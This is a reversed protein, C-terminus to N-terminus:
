LPINGHTKDPYEPPRHTMAALDAVLRRRTERPEIVDDIYGRKAAGYPNAFHERYEAMLEERRAEPDDAENLEKRYLIRVAPRPGLVAMEASPWAYNVDAGLDKSGMVIYAGGYAKRTVVTLLPVSADAYAHILKAGHRIVGGYEQETGPMFGPVDVLTVVPLNFADCFRVFRAGKQATAIDLTGAKIRPQNALVGVPRGDLRAFGTVLNRAWGPHTEFFSDGDVVAEVVATVDYPKSLESPVIENLEPTERTPDDASAIAPPLEGCNQPLFALLERVADLVAEESGMKAHAFGSLLTHTEAGGLESQSVSEGTVSEVVDPGTIFAYATDEVMLVFDTLAPAYTAGGACPGMIVSLQPILGSAETHKSFIRAFGTLADLGEQIRAGGSDNLGVVPIGNDIAWDLVKCIKDAVVESVSGGLFTFDHAYVAVTRGDIQGYGTVVADGLATRDEIGFQTCRHEVFTGFETFTGDDLLTEIREYATLKGKAHQLDVRDETGLRALRRREQLGAIAEAHGGGDVRPSENPM